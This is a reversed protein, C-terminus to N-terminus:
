RPSGYPKSHWNWVCGPVSAARNIVHWEPRSLGDAHPPHNSPAISTADMRAQAPQTRFQHSPHNVVKIGADFLDPM